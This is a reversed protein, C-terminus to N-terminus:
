FFSIFYSGYVFFTFSIIKQVKICINCNHWATFIYYILIQWLKPRGFVIYHYPLYKTIICLFDYFRLITVTFVSIYKYLTLRLINLVLSLMSSYLVFSMLPIVLINILFAYLSFAYFYYLTVPLTLLQVGISVVIIKFVRYSCSLNRQGAVEVVELLAVINTISECLILREATTIEAASMGLSVVYVWNTDKNQTTM